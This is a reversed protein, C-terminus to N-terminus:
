DGRSLAWAVGLLVLGIVLVAGLSGALAGIVFASWCM